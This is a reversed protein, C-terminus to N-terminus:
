LGFESGDAPSLDSFAARADDDDDKDEDDDDDDDAVLGSAVVMHPTGRTCQRPTRQSGLFMTGHAEVTLRSGRAKQARM